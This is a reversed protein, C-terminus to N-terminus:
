TLKGLEFHQYLQGEHPFTHISLHTLSDCAIKLSGSKTGFCERVPMNTFVM